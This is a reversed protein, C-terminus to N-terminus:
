KCLSLEKRGLFDKQFKHAAFMARTFHESFNGKRVALLLIRENHSYIQYKNLLVPEVQFYILLIAVCESM